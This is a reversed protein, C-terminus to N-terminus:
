RVCVRRTPTYGNLGSTRVVYTGAGLELATIGPRIRSKAVRMGDPRFVEVFGEGGESRLVLRGSGIPSFAHLRAPTSWSSVGAVSHVGVLGAASTLEVSAM